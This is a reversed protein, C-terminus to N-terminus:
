SSTTSGKHGPTDVDGIGQYDDGHMFLRQCRAWGSSHAGGGGVVAGHSSGREQSVSRGLHERAGQARVEGLSRPLLLGEALRRYVKGWVKKGPSAQEQM